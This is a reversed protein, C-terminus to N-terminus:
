ITLGNLVLACSGAMYNLSNKCICAYEAELHASRGCPHLLVGVDCGNMGCLDSAFGAQAVPDALMDRLVDVPIEDGHRYGACGADQWRFGSGGTPPNRWDWVQHGADRLDRLLAPYHENRWSSCVYIKM